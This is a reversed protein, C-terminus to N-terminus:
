SKRKRTTSVRRKRRKKPPNAVLYLGEPYVLDSPNRQVYEAANILKHDQDRAGGIVRLNCNLCLIGRVKLTKHNHDLCFVKDGQKCVACVNGQAALISEFQDLTIGYRKRLNYDKRKRKQEDPTM